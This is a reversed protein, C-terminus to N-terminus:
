ARADPDLAEISVQDGHHNMNAIEAKRGALNELVVGM